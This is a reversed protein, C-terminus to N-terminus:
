RDRWVGRCHALKTRRPKCVSASLLVFRRTRRAGIRAAIRRVAPPLAAAGNFTGPASTAIDAVVPATTLAKASDFCGTSEGVM